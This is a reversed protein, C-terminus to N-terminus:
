EHGQEDCPDKTPKYEMDRPAQNVNEQDHRNDGQDNMKYAAARLATPHGDEAPVTLGPYNSEGIRAATAVASEQSM